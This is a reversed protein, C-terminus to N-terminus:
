LPHSYVAQITEVGPNKDGLHANSLHSLQAGFRQGNQLKYTVEITSRFELGYGLDKSDGKTYYGAAFGPSIVFRGTNLPLDWYAGGYTYTAGDLNVSTGVTPRLGNFQDNFRYEAGFLGTKYQNARLASYQGGYVAIDGAHATGSLALITLLSAFITRM